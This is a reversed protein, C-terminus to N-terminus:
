LFQSTNAEIQLTRSTWFVRLNFGYVDRCVLPLLFTVGSDLLFCQPILPLFPSYAKLAQGGVSPVFYELM